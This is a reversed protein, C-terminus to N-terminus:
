GHRNFVAHGREAFRELVRELRQEPPRQRMAGLNLRRGPLEIKFVLVGGACTANVPDVGLMSSLMHVVPHRVAGSVRQHMERLVDEQTLGRSVAKEDIVRQVRQGDVAGPLVANVPVNWPGLEVALTKALGVLAWKSASYPVRLGRKDDAM